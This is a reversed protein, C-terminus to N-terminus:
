AKEALVVRVSTPTAPTRTLDIATIPSGLSMLILYTDFPVSQVSGAASTLRAVVPGGIAKLLVIHANALGGFAVAVPTDVSLDLSAIQKNKCVLSEDIPATDVPAFSLVGDLPDFGYSGSLTYRDAM